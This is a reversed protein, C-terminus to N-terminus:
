SLKGNKNCTLKVTRTITKICKGDLYKKATASATATASSKNSSSNSIKWHSNPCSTSVSSSTCSSNKGNYSFSGKVTVSWITKGTNSKYTNTKHGSKKQTASRLSVASEEHVTSEIYSGDPFTELIATKSAENANVVINCSFLLIITLLFTLLKKM